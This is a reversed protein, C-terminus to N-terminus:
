LTAPLGLLSDAKRTLKGGATILAAAAKRQKVAPSAKATELDRLEVVLHGVANATLRAGQVWDYRASKQATSSVTSVAVTSAAGRIVQELSILVPTITAYQSKKYSTLHELVTYGPAQGILRDEAAIVDVVPTGAAAASVATAFLMVVIGLVARRGMRQIM